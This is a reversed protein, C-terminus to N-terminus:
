GALAPAPQFSDGIIMLREGTERLRDEEWNKIAGTFTFGATQDVPKPVDAPHILNMAYWLMRGKGVRNDKLGFLFTLMPRTSPIISGTGEDIMRLPLFNQMQGNFTVFEGNDLNEELNPPLPFQVSERLGKYEYQLDPLLDNLDYSVKLFAMLRDPPPGEMAMNIFHYGAHRAPNPHFANLHKWDLTAITKGKLDGLYSGM